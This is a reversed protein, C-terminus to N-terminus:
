CCYEFCSGEIFYFQEGTQHEMEKLTKRLMRDRKTNRKILTQGQGTLTKRQKGTKMM